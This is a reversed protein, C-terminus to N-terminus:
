ESTYRDGGHDVVWAWLSDRELFLKEDWNGLIYRQRGIDWVAYEVGNSTKDNWIQLIQRECSKCTLKVSVRDSNPVLYTMPSLCGCYKCKFNFKYLTKNAM